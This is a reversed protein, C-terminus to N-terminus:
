LTCADVVPKFQESKLSEVDEDKSEDIMDFASVIAFILADEVDM